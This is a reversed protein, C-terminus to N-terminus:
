KEAEFTIIDDNKQPYKNFEYNSSVIIKKFGISYLIMKFEEIGYWRIPLYELESAVLRGDHWKEYKSLNIKYQNIYDIDILKNEYTIIDNEKTRFIKTNINDKSFDYDIFIDIILRGGEQLHNYFNELARISYHREHILLFTGTPIIIAEFERDLKFNEMTDNFVNAAINRDLCNKKCIDLMEVSSDFGTVNLDSELLPILIRGTGTAPELIEGTCNKLREKYYEVDGFSSGIPKDINYVEASLTKYNQIM